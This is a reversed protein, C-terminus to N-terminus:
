GTVMQKITKPENNYVKERKRELSSGEVNTSYSTQHHQIREAKAQRYLKQNRRWIQIPDKSPVTM